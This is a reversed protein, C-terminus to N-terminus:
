FTGTAIIAETTTYVGATTTTAATAGYTLASNVNACASTSSEIPDGYTSLTSAGMGYSGTTTGYNGNATVTGTGGTGNAVNLGFAATGATIAGFAGQAPIGCTTGNDRSLGACATSSLVKLAAVVGSGADTSIQTYGTATDVATSDLALPTGHGLTFTPTTTGSCGGTPAAASVCFTLTEMVIATISVNNATSLAFGGYDMYTGLSTPSSYAGGCSAGYATDCYTYVRAYFSGTTTPNTINNLTFSIPSTGLNSGTGKNLEVTTAGASGITWNSTGTGATFTASSAILDNTTSCSTGIIPSDMCFDIVLSQAATTAPTFTFNYSVSPASATDNSMQISRTTIQAASAIQTCIPLLLVAAMGFIAALSTCRILRKRSRM